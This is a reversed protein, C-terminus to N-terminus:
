VPQAEMIVDTSEASKVEEVVVPKIEDVVQTKM